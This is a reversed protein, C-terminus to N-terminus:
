KNKLDIYPRNNLDQVLDSPKRFLSQESESCVRISKLSSLKDLNLRLWRGSRGRSQDLGATVVYEKRVLADIITNITGISWFSFTEQIQRVPKRVWLYGDDRVEGQRTLWYELQLLLISENLGIEKALEPCLQPAAPNNRIFVGAQKTKSM